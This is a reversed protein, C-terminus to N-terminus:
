PRPVGFIKDPKKFVSSEDDFDVPENSSTADPHPVDESDDEGLSLRKATEIQASESPIAEFSVVEDGKSTKQRKRDSSPHNPQVPLRRSSSAEPHSVPRATDQTDLQKILSQAVVLKDTMQQFDHICTRLLAATRMSSANPDFTRSNSAEQSTESSTVENTPLSAEDLEVGSDESEVFRYPCKMCKWGTDTAIKSQHRCQDFPGPLAGVPTSVPPVDTSQVNAQVANRSEVNMETLTVPVYDPPLELVGAQMLNRLRDLRQEIELKCEFEDGIMGLIEAEEQSTAATSLRSELDDTYMNSERLWVTLTQVEEPVNTGRTQLM